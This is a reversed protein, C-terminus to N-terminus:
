EVNPAGKTATSRISAEGTADPWRGLSRDELLNNDEWAVRDVMKGSPDFLRVADANGLGYTFGRVGTPDQEVVLYAGPQLTTAAFVFPDRDKADRLAWGELDVAADGRNTLEVWDTNGLLTSKAFVENIVVDATTPIPGDPKADGGGGGCAAALVLLPTSCLLLKIMM